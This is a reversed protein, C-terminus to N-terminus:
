RSRLLRSLQRRVVGLMTESATPKADKLARSIALAGVLAAVAFLSLDRSESNSRGTARLENKVLEVFGDFGAAFEEQVAGDQQSIQSVLAAIPCGSEPSDRHQLSLYQSLLDDLSLKSFDSHCQRFGEELAESSLADKSSFHSYLAGHTLGAAKAVEGVTMAGFGGKRMHRSAVDLISARNEAAQAKSVKM